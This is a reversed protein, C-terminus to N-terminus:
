AFLTLGLVSGVVHLYYSHFSKSLTRPVNFLPYINCTDTRSADKRPLSLILWHGLGVNLCTLYLLKNELSEFSVVSTGEPEWFAKEMIQVAEGTSHMGICPYFGLSAPNLNLELCKEGNKRFFGKNNDFDIYLSIM